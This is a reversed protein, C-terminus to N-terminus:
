ILWSGVRDFDLKEAASQREAHLFRIVVRVECSSPAAIITDM